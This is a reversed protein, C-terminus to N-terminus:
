EKEKGITFLSNEGAEKPDESEEEEDEFEFPDPPRQPGYKRFVVAWILGSFAGSLHGEWSVKRDVLESIPFMNWVTSGYLFAVLMSIAMLPIYKRFIGSFFLFFSLAYILGSAGIHWSERGILWTFFGSFIWLLPFVVYGLDKYFYFLCWGLVLLPVSNSALHKLDAHIFPSTLIGPLGNVERPYIGWQHWRLDLGWELVPVMWLVLIFLLPFLLAYGMRKTEIKM